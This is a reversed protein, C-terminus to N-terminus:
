HGVHYGKSQSIFVAILVSSESFFLMWAAKFARFPAFLGFGFWHNDVELFTPCLLHVNEICPFAKDFYLLMM